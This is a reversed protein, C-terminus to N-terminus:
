RLPRRGKAALGGKKAPKCQVMSAGFTLHDLYCCRKYLEIETIIFTQAVTETSTSVSGFWSFDKAQELKEKEKKIVM